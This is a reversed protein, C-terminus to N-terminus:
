KAGRHASSSRLAIRALRRNVLAGAIVSVFVVTIVSFLFIVHHLSFSFM